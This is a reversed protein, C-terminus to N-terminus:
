ARWNARSLPPSIIQMFSDRELLWNLCKWSNKWSTTCLASESHRLLAAAVNIAGSLDWRELRETYSILPDIFLFINITTAVRNGLLWHHAVIIFAVLRKTDLSAHFIERRMVWSLRKNRDRSLANKKVAAEWVKKFIENTLNILVRLIFLFCILRSEGM